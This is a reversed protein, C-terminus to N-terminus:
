VEEVRNAQLVGLGQASGPNRSDKSIHALHGILVRHEDFTALLASIEGVAGRKGATMDLPLSKLIREPFHAAGNVGVQGVQPEVTLGDGPRPLHRDGGDGAGGSHPLAKRGDCGPLDNTSKFLDPKAKRALRAGAMGDKAPLGVVAAGDNGGMRAGNDLALRQLRNKLIGTKGKILEPIDKSIVGLRERVKM